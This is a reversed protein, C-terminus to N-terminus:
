LYVTFTWSMRLTKDEGLLERPPAAFPASDRVTREAEADYRLLGSSNIVFLDALRGEADVKLGLVVEVQGRSVQNAFFYQRIVLSPNFTMKFIRKLRVFYQIQPFRLVNLYTHPGVRYNPYFDEPLSAFGREQQATQPSQKPSKTRMSYLQALDAAEDAEKEQGQPSPEAKQPSAAHDSRAVQEEKVRSDYLGWFIPRM